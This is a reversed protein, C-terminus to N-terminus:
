RSRGRRVRRALPVAAAAALAAFWIAELVGSGGDPDVHLWQEIWHM